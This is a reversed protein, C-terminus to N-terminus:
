TNEVMKSSYRLFVVEGVGKSELNWILTRGSNIGVAIVLFGMLDTPDIM